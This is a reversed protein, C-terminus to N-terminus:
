EDEQDEAAEALEESAKKKMDKQVQDIMQETTLNYTKNIQTLSTPAATGDIEKELKKKQTKQLQMDSITKAAQTTTGILGALAEFARPHQSDTAIHALEKAAKAGIEVLDKIQDAMSALDAQDQENEPLVPLNKKESVQVVSKNETTVVLEKSTYEVDEVFEAEVDFVEDLKNKTKNEDSM